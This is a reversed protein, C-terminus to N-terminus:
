VFQEQLKESQYETMRFCCLNGRYVHFQFASLDDGGHHRCSYKAECPSAM